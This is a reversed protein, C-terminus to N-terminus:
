LLPQYMKIIERFELPTPSKTDTNSFESQPLTQPIESTILYMFISIWKVTMKNESKKSVNNNMCHKILDILIRMAWSYFHMTRILHVDCLEFIQSNHHRRYLMWSFSSQHLCNGELSSIDMVSVNIRKILKIYLLRM